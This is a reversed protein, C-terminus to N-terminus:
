KEHLEMGAASAATQQRSDATKLMKHNNVVSVKIDLLLLMQILKRIVIVICCLVLFDNNDTSIIILIEM